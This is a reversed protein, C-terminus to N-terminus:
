FFSRIRYVRRFYDLIALRSLQMNRGDRTIPLVDCCGFRDDGAEEIVFCIQKWTVDPKLFILYLEGKFLFSNLLTSSILSFAILCNIAIVLYSKGSEAKKENKKLHITLRSQTYVTRLNTIQLSSLFAGNYM